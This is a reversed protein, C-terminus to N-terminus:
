DRFAQRCLRWANRIRTTRWSNDLQYSLAALTDSRAELSPQLNRSDRYTEHETEYLGQVTLSQRLRQTAWPWSAALTFTDIANIQAIEDNTFQWYLYQHDSGASLIPTLRDYTYLVDWSLLSQKREYTLV